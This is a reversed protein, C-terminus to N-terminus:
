RALAPRRSMERGPAAVAEDAVARVGIAHLAQAKFARAAISLEHCV